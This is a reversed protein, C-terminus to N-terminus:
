AANVPIKVHIIACVQASQSCRTKDWILKYAEKYKGAKTLGVYGQPSGLRALRLAPRPSPLHM